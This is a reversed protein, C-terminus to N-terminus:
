GLDVSRVPAPCPAGLLHVLLLPPEGIGTWGFPAWPNLPRQGALVEEASLRGWRALSRALASLPVATVKLPISKPVPHKIYSMSM